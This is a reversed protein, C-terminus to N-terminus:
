TQRGIQLEGDSSPLIAGDSSLLIAIPRTAEFHSFVILLSVTIPVCLIMGVVGWLLGWLALAMLIVLPSLNLTRGMLRPELLNGITFQAAGLTAAVLLAPWPSGFQVLALVTPFIVGILSGITPIYNLIFIVLAWFAAFDVGVLTLIVYSVAGTLLSMLTKIWLYGQIQSGIQDILARLRAAREPSRALADLKRGFVQQEILMLIVYISIISASGALSGLTSALQRVHRGIDIQRALEGLSPTEEIGLLDYASALLIQLNAQYGPAAAAVRAANGIIVDVMLALVAFISILAGASCLWGPLRHGAIRLRGFVSIVANILYWIMLAIAVPVLLRRGQVLAAVTLGVIVLTAAATVLRPLATSTSM